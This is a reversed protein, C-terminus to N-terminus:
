ANAPTEVEPTDAEGPAEGLPPESGNGKLVLLSDAANFYDQDLQGEGQWRVEGTCQQEDARIKVM